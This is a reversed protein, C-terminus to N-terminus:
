PLARRLQTLGRLTQEDLGARRADYVMVTLQDLLTRHGLDPIAIREHGAATRTADALQQALDRLLSANEAAVPEPLERWRRSVRRLETSIDDVRVAYPACEKGTQGTDLTTLRWQWRYRTCRSPMRTAVPKM